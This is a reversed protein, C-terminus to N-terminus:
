FPGSFWIPCPNRGPEPLRNSLNRSDWRALDGGYEFSAADISKLITTLVRRRRRELNIEPLDILAIELSVCGAHLPCPLGGYDLHHFRFAIRDLFSEDTRGTFM